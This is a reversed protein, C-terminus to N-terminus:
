TYGDREWEEVVSFGGRCKRKTIKIRESIIKNVEFDGNLKGYDQDETERVTEEGKEKRDWIQLLFHWPETFSHLMADFETHIILNFELM